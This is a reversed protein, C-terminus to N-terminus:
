ANGVQSQVGNQVGFKKTHVTGGAEIQQAARQLDSESTINYRAFVSATKHGSIEMAVREPVGRRVMNRVASRRLDHFILGEYTVSHKDLIRGCKACQWGDETKTVDTKCKMCVFKGFGAKVCAAYWSERSDVVPTLTDGRTFVAEKPKQGGRHGHRLFRPGNDGASHHQSGHWDCQQDQEPPCGIMPAPCFLLLFLGFPSACDVKHRLTTRGMAM